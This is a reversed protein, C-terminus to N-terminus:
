DGRPENETWEGLTYSYVEMALATHEGCFTRLTGDADITRYEMQPPAGCVACSESIASM